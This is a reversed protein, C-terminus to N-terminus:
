SAEPSRPLTSERLVLETPLVVNEPAPGSESLSEILLRAATRGKELLPQRVTTLTPGSLSAAEVDDFGVVELEEPIRIGRERAARLVGLALADSICLAATPRCGSELARLFGREGGEVSCRPAAIRRPEAVGREEFARAYGAYRRGGVGYYPTETLGEPDPFDLFLVAGPESHGHGLLHAAAEYAGREDEVNVSPMTDARGDVVVFPVGRRSLPAVEPHDADLGLVVFGDVPANGIAKELSGEQPSVTMMALGREDCAAGVGQVFTAYFPNAFADSLKEPMLVGLVGARRSHLARAHPNPTYGLERAAELVRDVTGRSLRTPENFTFSVATRSVGARRAVESITVRSM